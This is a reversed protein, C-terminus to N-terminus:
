LGDELKYGHRKEDEASAERKFKVTALDCLCGQKTASEIAGTINDKRWTKGFIQNVDAETHTQGVEQLLDITVSVIITRKRLICDVAHARGIRENCYFCEGPKGAQAPGNKKTVLNTEPQIM